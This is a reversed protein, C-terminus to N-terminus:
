GTLWEPWDTRTYTCIALKDGIYYNRYAQVPDGVVKYQDPMCQEFPTVELSSDIGYPQTIELIVKGSKHDKNYRRTYEQALALGYRRLWLWNGLTKQSWIRCPHNPHTPKYPAKNGLLHCTTCMIQAAELVMKVVHKDCHCIAAIEPEKDLVFINM